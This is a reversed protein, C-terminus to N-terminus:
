TGDNIALRSSLGPQLDRWRRHHPADDPREDGPMLDYTGTGGFPFSKDDVHEVLQRPAHESDTLRRCLPECM